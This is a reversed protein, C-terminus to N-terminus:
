QTVKFVPRTIVIKKPTSWTMKTNGTLHPNVGRVRYWWTGPQLPLLASSAYTKLSGAPRWPYAGRTGQNPAWEVDYGVAGSTPTWNVLPTGYFGTAGSTASVLRGSPSLGTVSAVAPTHSNKRFWRVGAGTAFHQCVDQPVMADRFTGDKLKNVPVVTWYYRGSPRSSDWLDLQALPTTELTSAPLLRPAYAPGGVPAGKFVTNVCDKDTAVYVRHYAAGDQSFLFAPMVAHDHNVRASVVKVRGASMAPTNALVQESSVTDLPRALLASGSDGVRTSYVASWPGYSVRPLKNSTTGYLARKARVRWQIETGVPESAFEREDAVTTATEFRHNFGLDPYWVQYGTAGEVPTWAIAGPGVKAPIPVGLTDNASDHNNLDPWRMNFRNAASWGSPVGNSRVARVHWYLSAPSGTMWPLAIPISVAPTTLKTTSWIVANAAGFQDSTSLEFEYRVAGPVPQWAFSPTRSFTPVVTSSLSRADGLRLEFTQLGTPKAHVAGSAASGSAALAATGIIAALIALALRRPIRMLRAPRRATRDDRTTSMQIEDAKRQLSTM